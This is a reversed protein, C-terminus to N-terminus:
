IAIVVLLGVVMTAYAASGLTCIMSLGIRWTLCGRAERLTSIGDHVELLLVLILFIGFCYTAPTFHPVPYMFEEM